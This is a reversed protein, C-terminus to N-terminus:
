NPAAGSPLGPSASARTYRTSATPNTWTPVLLELGRLKDMLGHVETVSMNVLAAVEDPTSDPHRLLAHYVAFTAEDVGLPEFVSRRRLAKDSGVM